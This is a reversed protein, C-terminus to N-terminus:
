NGIYPLEMCSCICEDAKDADIGVAFKYRNNFWTEQRKAYACTNKIITERVEDLSIKGEFFGRWEKYGIGQMSQMDFTVGDSLLAEVERQLGAELMRDVRSAIKQRLKNRESHLVFFKFPEVPKFVACQESARKGSSEFIYLARLVRVTNNFHIKEASLPDVAKLREHMHRAGFRALEEKLASYLVEDRKGNGGYSLEYLFVDIYFGTGGVIVAEKGRMKIDSLCKLAANKYDVVTFPTKPSVVDTMHLPLKPATDKATGIDMGSYIQMSDASILEGGAEGALKEAFASKGTATAGGVIIM